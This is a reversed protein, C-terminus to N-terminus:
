ASLRRSTPGSALLGASVQKSQYYDCLLSYPLTCLTSFLIGYTICLSLVVYLNRSLTALGTGLGFALYAIFYLTRVSLREELKELLAAVWLPLHAAGRRPGWAAWWAPLRSAGSRSVRAPGRPALPGSIPNDPHAAPGPTAGKVGLPPGWTSCCTFPDKPPLILSARSNVTQPQVRLEQVFRLAETARRVRPCRSGWGPRGTDLSGSPGPLEPEAHRGKGSDFVGPGSGGTRTGGFM